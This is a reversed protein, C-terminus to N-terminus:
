DRNYRGEDCKVECISIVEVLVVKYEKGCGRREFEWLASMEEAWLKPTDENLIQRYPNCRFDTGYLWKKYKNNWIAYAM